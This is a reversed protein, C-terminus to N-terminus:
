APVSTEKKETIVNIEADALEHFFDADERGMEKLGFHTQFKISEVTRKKTLDNKRNQNRKKAM